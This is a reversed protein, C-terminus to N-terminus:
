ARAISPATPTSTGAHCSSRSSPRCIRQPQSNGGPASHQTAAITASMVAVRQITEYVIRGSRCSCKTAAPECPSLECKSPWANELHFRAVPKDTPTSCSSRAARALRPWRARRRRRTGRTCRSTPSEGHKFMVDGEPSTAGPVKIIKVGKDTSMSSSSPKSGPPSATSSRSRPSRTRRRRHPQIPLRSRHDTAAMAPIRETPKRKRTQTLVTM